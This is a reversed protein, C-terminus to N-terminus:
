SNAGYLRIVGEGWGLIGGLTYQQDSVLLGGASQLTVGSGAVFTVSGESDQSWGCSFDERLTSPITVTCGAPNTFRICVSHWDNVATIESASIDWFRTGVGLEILGLPMPGKNTPILQM